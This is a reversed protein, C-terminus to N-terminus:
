RRVVATSGFCQMTDGFRESWARECGEFMPDCDDGAVYGGSKVVPWWAALDACVPGYDHDGDILVADVSAPVFMRAAQVSPARVHRVRDWVDGLKEVATRYMEVYRGGGEYPDIAWITWGPPAVDLLYGLSHLGGNGIEVVVADAPLQAIGRESDGHAWADYLWTFASGAVIGRHNSCMNELATGIRKM